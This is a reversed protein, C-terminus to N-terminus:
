SRYSWITRLSKKRKCGTFPMSLQILQGSVTSILRYPDTIVASVTAFPIVSKEDLQSINFSAPVTEVVQGSFPQNATINIQVPYTYPPFIRTAAQRSVDFLPADSVVFMDSISYTGNKTVATLKEIYTGKNWVVYETQYDPILTLDKQTCVPNVRISGDTTYRMANNGLPDIIELTVAADCVTDGKENLVAIAINATEGRTYISKDTNIALVGWLFEQTSIKTTDEYVNLTYKGPTLTDRPTLEYESIGNANTQSMRLSIPLGDRDVLELRLGQGNTDNAVDVVVPEQGGFSSKSLTRVRAPTHIQASVPTTDSVISPKISSTTTLSSNSLDFASYEYTPASLEPSISPLPVPTPTPTPSASPTATPPVDFIEPTLQDLPTPTPEEAPAASATAEQASVMSLPTILPMISFMM